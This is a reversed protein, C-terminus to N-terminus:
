VGEALSLHHSRQQMVHALLRFSLKISVSLTIVDYMFSIIIDVYM